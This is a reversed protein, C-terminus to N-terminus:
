NEGGRRAPSIPKSRGMRGGVRTKGGRVDDRSELMRDLIAMADRIQQETKM